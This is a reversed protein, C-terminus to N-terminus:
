ATGRPEILRAADGMATQGMANAAVELIKDATDIAAEPTLKAVTGHTGIIFVHGGRAAVSLRENRPDAAM